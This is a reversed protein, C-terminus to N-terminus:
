LYFGRGLIYLEASEPRSAKPKLIKVEKFFPKIESIFEKLYSGDFVKVFFTGDNKLTQKTISFATKALDIQRAHDVDWVGLLNPSLDSLVVDVRRGFISLIKKPLEKNLVDIKLFSVNPLNIPQIPKIDVGLVKGKLGVLKSTVQLWGGPACGLDVVFDGLKIFGYSKNAQLLKYAARSRYGEM